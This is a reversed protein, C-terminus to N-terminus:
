LQRQMQSLAVGTAIYEWYFLTSQKSGCAELVLLNILLWLWEVPTQSGTFFVQIVLSRHGRQHLNKLILAITNSYETLLSIPGGVPTLFSFIKM